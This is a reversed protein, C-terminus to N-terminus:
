TFSFSVLECFHSRISRICLYRGNDEGMPYGGNYYPFSHCLQGSRYAAETEDCNYLDLCATVDRCELMESIVFSTSLAQYYNGSLESKITSAKLLICLISASFSVVINIKFSNDQQSKM